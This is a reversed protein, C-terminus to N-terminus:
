IQCNKKIFQSLLDKNKALYSTLIKKDELLNGSYSLIPPCNLQVFYRIYRLHVNEPEDKILLELKNRSEKFISLKKIPNYFYTAQKMEISCVYGQVTPSSINKYKNIFALETKESNLKHYDVLVAPNFDNGIIIALFTLILKM